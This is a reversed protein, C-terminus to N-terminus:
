EWSFGRRAMRQRVEDIVDRAALGPLSPKEISQGWGRALLSPGRAEDVGHSVVRFPTPQEVPLSMLGESIRNYSTHSRAPLRGLWPKRGRSASASVLM